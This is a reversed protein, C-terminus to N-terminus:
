SKIFKEVTEILDEPDFPKKLFANFGDAELIPFSKKYYGSIAVLPIARTKPNDKLEMAIELGSKKDMKLDLLVLDPMIKEAEDTAGVPDSFGYVRYGSDRLLDEVEELLEVNDDVIIIKKGEETMM